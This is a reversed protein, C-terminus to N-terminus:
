NNGILESARKAGLEEILGERLDRLERFVYSRKLTPNALIKDLYDIVTEPGTTTLEIANINIGQSEDEDLEFIFNFYVQGDLKMDIVRKMLHQPSKKNVSPTTCIMQDINKNWFKTLQTKYDKTKKTLNIHKLLLRELVKASNEGTLEQAAILKSCIKNSLGEMEKSQLSGDYLYTHKDHMYYLINRLCGNFHNRDVHSNMSLDLEEFGKKCVDVLMARLKQNSINGNDAGMRQKIDNVNRLCTDHSWKIKIAWRQESLALATCIDSADYGISKEKGGLPNIANALVHHSLSFFILVFLINIISLPKCMLQKTM